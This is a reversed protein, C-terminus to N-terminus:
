RSEDDSEEDDSSEDDSLEMIEVGPHHARWVRELAVQLADEDDRRGTDEWKEILSLLMESEEACPQTQTEGKDLKPITSPRAFLDVAAIERTPRKVLPEIESAFRRFEPESNFCEELVFMASATLTFDFRSNGSYRQILYHEKHFLSLEGLPYNFDAGNALLAKTTDFIDNWTIEWQIDDAKRFVLVESKDNADVYTSLRINHSDRLWRYWFSDATDPELVGPETGTLEVQVIPNAGARLLVRALDVCIMDCCCLMYTEALFGNQSPVKTQSNLGSDTKWQLCKKLTQRYNSSRMEAAIDITQNRSETSERWGLTATTRKSRSYNSLDPFSSPHSWPEVPLDLQECVYRTMGVYAAMGVKDISTARGGNIMFAFPSPRHSPRYSEDEAPVRYGRALSEYNLSQMLIKQAAGLIQEAKSIEQLSALFSDFVPNPWKNDVSKADGQSLHAVQALTGRPISLRIQAESCGYGALFSKAEDNRLLFDRATRHLFNIRTSLIPDHDRRKGYIRQDNEKPTIELLGATHSLLRIRLTRCAAVLESTAIDEYYAPRDKLERQSQSFYLRCLDMGSDQYLATLLFNAADRKFTPKIRRLMLMFLSELESPLTELTQALENINAIGRLGEELDRIAIIAWLFVGDARWVLSDILEEAKDQDYRNLSVYKQIPESLKKRAYDKINRFNLEQLRMSPKGGFAEEFALIPRSSVCVKVHTQDALDQIADIVTDGPGDFEDLGDIFMCIAIPVQSQKLLNLLAELLRSQTWTHLPESQLLSLYVTSVQEYHSVSFCEVLERCEKLMQYLLSRLLGDVSKQLRTGANWFFFTPTLLRRDSCWQGLLELRRSHNCIYNMLTSKGSGAKGNIWYVGHGSKLWRAFDDWRREQQQSSYKDDSEQRHTQPDDFIWDYSNTIGDFQSDVQEQRSSIDPYFLSNVVEEYRRDGIQLKEVRGIQATIIHRTQTSEQVM